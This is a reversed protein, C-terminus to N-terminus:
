GDKGGLSGRGGPLAKNVEAGIEAATRMGTLKFLARGGRFLITTPVSRIACRSKAEPAEDVDIEGLTIGVLGKELKALEPAMRKCPGCWQAGFKVLVPEESGLVDSDFNSDDYRRM